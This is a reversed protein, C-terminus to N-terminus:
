NEIKFLSLVVTAVIINAFLDLTGTWLLQGTTRDFSILHVSIFLLSVLVIGWGFSFTTAIWKKELYRDLIALFLGRFVLEESFAPIFLQFIISENLNKSPLDNLIYGDLTNWGGLVFGFLLGFLIGKVPWQLKLGVEEANLWKFLFIVSWPWLFSLLGGGM